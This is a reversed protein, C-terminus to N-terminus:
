YSKDHVIGERCKMKCLVEATGNKGCHRVHEMWKLIVKNAKDFTTNKIKLQDLWQKDQWLDSTYLTKPNRIWDCPYFIGDSGVAKTQWCHPNINMPDNNTYDTQFEFHKQYNTEKTPILNNDEYRHTKISYWEAGKSHAFDQIKDLDNENFRFVITQWSIKAESQSVIDLATMISQWNSNKRYLHNTNELGDIAFVVEDGTKLNESLKEWFASTQHSGNTCFKLKKERFTQTFDLLYPYYICDGYDGCLVLKELKQGGPCDLFKEFDQIDLDQKPMPIKTLERWTTRPCAPCQITCRSTLEVHLTRDTLEM